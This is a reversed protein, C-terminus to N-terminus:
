RVWSDDIRIKPREPRQYVPTNRARGEWYRRVARPTRFSQSEQPKKAQKVPEKVPKKLKKLGNETLYKEVLYWSRRLDNALRATSLAPYNQEIYGKEEATLSRPRLRVHYKDKVKKITADSVRLESTIKAYTMGEKLCQVIKKETEKSTKRM